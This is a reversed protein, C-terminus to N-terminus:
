MNRQHKTRSRRKIIFYVISVVVIFTGIAWSLSTKSERELLLPYDDIAMVDQNGLIDNTKEYVKIAPSELFLYALEDSDEILDGLSSTYEFAMDGIGDHDLDLMPEDWYNGNGKADSWDNNSNGGITLIHNTNNNFTNKAFVNSTASTWIEVGIQNKFFENEEILNGTSHEVLLGRQNLHFLNQLVQIERSTQILLGFSRSGQNFSFENNELTIYDSHMITAGGVNHVFHNDTFTNYNSYMYHLGYRTKTMTNHHIENNDSYEMYVGDRFKEIYNNEILVDNSRLVHIGNGQESLNTSESGIITLHRISTDDIRNLLVGHFSEKITLNKLEAHNGMVRVASHEEKSDRSMGSGKVELNELTVNDSEIEIVNGTQDGQIVTGEEGIITMAKDIVVNGKYVNPQLKLTAGEETQDILDQLTNTEANTLSPGILLLITAICIISIKKM